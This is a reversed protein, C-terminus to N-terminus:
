LPARISVTLGDRQTVVESTAGECPPRPNFRERIRKWQNRNGGGHPSPGPHHASLLTQM